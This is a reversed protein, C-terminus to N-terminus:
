LKILRGVLLGKICNSFSKVTFYALQAGTVFNDSVPILFLTKVIQFWPRRGRLIVPVEISVLFFLLWVHLMCTVALASFFNCVDQCILFSYIYLFM